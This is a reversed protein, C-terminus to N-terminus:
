SQLVTSCLLCEACSEVCNSFQVGYLASCPSVLSHRAPLKRDSTTEIGVLIVYILYRVVLLSWLSVMLLASEMVSLFESKV